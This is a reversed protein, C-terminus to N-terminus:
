VKEKAMTKFHKIYLDKLTDEDVEEWNLNDQLHERLEHLSTIDQICWDIHGDLELIDSYNDVSDLAPIYKSETNNDLKEINIKWKSPYDPADYQVKILSGDSFIIYRPENYYWNYEEEIDGEIIILDDSQGYIKISM